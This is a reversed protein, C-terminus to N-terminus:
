STIREATLVYLSDDLVAPTEAAYRARIEWALALDVTRFGHRRLFGEYDEPHVGFTISEGILSLAGPHPELASGHDGGGRDPKATVPASPRIATPFRRERRVM